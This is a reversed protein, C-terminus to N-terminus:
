TPRSCRASIARRRAARSSSRSAASARGAARANVINVNQDLRYELLGAAFAATILRTVPQAVEGRYHLEARQIAGQAMQAHLLGLRRALDVYLRLEDLEARDVAAM